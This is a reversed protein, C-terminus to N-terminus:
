LSSFYLFLSVFTLPNTTSFLKFLHIKNKPEEFLIKYEEEEFIMQPILAQM